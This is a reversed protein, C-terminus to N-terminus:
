AAAINVIPVGNAAQTIAANGSGAPDLTLEAATSVLPNLFLVGALLRAIFRFVPCHVDM